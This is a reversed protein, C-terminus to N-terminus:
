RMHPLQAVEDQRWPWPIAHGDPCRLHGGIWTEAIAPREAKKTGRTWTVVLAIQFENKEGGCKLPLVIESEGSHVWSIQQLNPSRYKSHGDPSYIHVHKCSDCVLIVSLDDNASMGRYPFLREFTDTPLMITALCRPTKCPFAYCLVSEAM